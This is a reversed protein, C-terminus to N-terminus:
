PQAMLGITEEIKGEGDNYRVSLKIKTQDTESPYDMTVSNLGEAVVSGNSTFLKSIDDTEYLCSGLFYIYEKGTDSDVQMYNKGDHVKIAVANRWSDPDAPSEQILKDNQRIKVSLFSIAIRAENQTRSDDYVADYTKDGFFFLSFYAATLIGMVAMATILETLTFGKISNLKKLVKSIKM